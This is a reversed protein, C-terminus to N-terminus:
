NSDTVKEEVQSQWEQHNEVLSAVTRGDMQTQSGWEEIRTLRENLNQTETAVRLLADNVELRAKKTESVREQALISENLRM